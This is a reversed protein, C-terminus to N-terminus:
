QKIIQYSEVNQNSIILLNYIGVPLQTMDIETEISRNIKTIICKGTMDVLEIIYERSEIFGCIKVKGKTPNPYVIFKEDATLGQEDLSQDSKLKSDHIVISGGLLTTSPDDTIGLGIENDYVVDESLTEWIKIRFLDPNGKEKADSDIASILFQYDGEGNITGWGKFKAKSGAVVLWDYVTSKFDLNGAKFKFKTNGDPNVKNKVYRSVFGFSAVGMSDPFLVSAGRPSYILGGGTVFSGEPDYVVVYRYDQTVSVDYNDTITLKIEYVGPNEYYHVGQIENGIIGISTNGDGWNWEAKHLNDDEYYGTVKIPNVINVPDTPAVIETIIPAYNSLTVSQDVEVVNGGNDTIIWHVVTTGIPFIDPANNEVSQIGCEDPLIEIDDWINAFQVHNGDPDKDSFDKVIVIPPTNDVIFVTAKIAAIGGRDNRLQLEVTNEGVNSCDFDTKSLTLWSEGCENVSGNDIDKVTVSAHGNEDLELTIDNAKAIPLSECMYIDYIKFTRPDENGTKLNYYADWNYIIVVQDDPYIEGQTREFGYKDVVIATAGEEVYINALLEAVTTSPKISSIISEENNVYFLESTAVIEEQPFVPILRYVVVTQGDEATVEFYTKSNVKVDVLQGQKNIRKFPVLNHNSDFINLTAGEPVIVSDVANELLTGFIIETIEATDAPFTIDYVMSTLIADDSFGESSSEIYYQTSNTGDASVVTLLEGGNIIGDTVGSLTLQQEEDAKIINGLFESSSTGSIVGSITENMTYGPSVKYVNSYIVSQYETIENMTHKGLDNSINLIELPWGSNQSQWYARNTWTWECDDPNTGFSGQFEPNGKKIIPKRIWNTIMQAPQGGIVWNSGDSMGFVEILEFDAPDTAPKLGAKVDPNLIKFMYWVSNMWKRVPSGKDGISQNWPNKIEDNLNNFQVDLQAPVPWVYDPLRDPHANGDTRIDGFAFVDGPQVIPNVTPDPYAIYYKGTEWDISDCWKYGPIYKLYRDLWNNERWSIVQDPNPNYEMAIMYNSLDLPETGPNYIEGFSNSWQDWFIIESLFPEAAYPQINAPDKLKNLHVKYIRQTHGDEATVTFQITKNAINGASPNFIDTKIHAKYDAPIADFAPVGTVQFPIEVTYEYFASAFNPITDGTWGNIGKLDEPIGLWTIAALEANHAPRYPQVQIFYDKIAGNEATIRLIDGTALDAKQYGGEFIFEYTANSPLELYKILSDARTAFPIGFHSGTITDMVPANQTVRPWDVEGGQVDNGFGYFFKAGSHLRYKPIVTNDDADPQLVVIDFSEVDLDNGCVYITIQDGTRASMFASDASNPSLQYRWALGPKKGFEHMFDDLGRTGWPATITKNMWDVSLTNSVLTTEDLNYDGHNGATWFVDRWASNQHPLTIWESNDPNTGRGNAFDLNGVSINAKRVLTATQTANPFGAVDYAGDRNRGNIDFVGGVQDIVVAENENLYHRLYWVERGNYVEFTSWHDGIISDTEDGNTEPIHFQIDALDYWEEKTQRELYNDPDSLWQEAGFDTVVAITFSEGPNLIYDPLMFFRNPEPNWPDAWPSICGFEFENLQVPQGSVNTLEVYANYMNDLRAETILLSRNIDPNCYAPFEIGNKQRQDPDGQLNVGNDKLCQIVNCSQFDLYNQDLTASILSLNCLEAPLLTFNNYQLDLSNLFNCNSINKPLSGELQNFNLNINNIEVLNGIEPLINGYLNNNCLVINNLGTLDYFEIPIVGDLYNGCLSISRVRGDWLDIGYWFSVPYNSKWNQNNNWNDGNTSDYLAVLALSDQEAVPEFPPFIGCEGFLSKGSQQIQFKDGQFEVNKDMLCQLASCDETGFNNYDLSLYQINTNCIEAPISGSFNNFRIDMNWLNQLTGIEQSIFGDMQTNQISIGNLEPFSGIHQLIQGSLNEDCFSFYWLASLDYFEQPITGNLSNRCLEVNRVRGEQVTVGYWESVTVGEELWGSNNNWNLGDTANYLAVLALSDTESVPNYICGNTLSSGDQQTQAFDWDFEVGNALLCQITPCSGVDFNNGSFVVSQLGPISCLEGPLVGSLSNYAVAINRLNPLLRLDAPIVGTLQNYNLYLWELSEMQGIEPPISGSLQNGALNLNYVETLLGIESPISGTLQNSHVQIYKLKLLNGIEVPIQGGIQNGDLTLELLGTLNGIDAPLNGSLNNNGLNLRIVRENEITVGYWKSVPESSNWNLNNSWSDGNTSIYFQVLALSDQETVPNYICGNTLSFGDKQIQNYDWEFRVGKDKLCKVISCSQENFNNAQFNVQELASINCLSEPLIGSLENNALQISQLNQLQSLESPIEGSLQNNNLSLWQLNILQGIEAPITGTLQNLSLSLNYLNLLSGISNPIAGSFQNNSLDLGQLKAINGIEVPIQGSIQNDGLFLERLGTLNGIDAPLNGSLNNNWLELRTVRENEITVGYWKSVPESSNWNLNNSWSNGNTSIYFQVLALSDQETVPNYICGNTLSFGDKQTQNYDWEFRVGKDKLCKVTSCSQENFNNAQFNVQELASINCLSEPLIGSLENNALQISQLNQLQSLESPIEGSLQNNNLSLWQLNILQGIQPPFTGTLQNESLSLNFLNLLNGISNPIAGSFQNNSLDLGQLKAINGIEVPIQGSIQNGGLYLERLGELDGLEAPLNGSLNNNWLELRTVQENEVTVGFWKSVPESSNWNLNNSWSDGNTSIYFQVLALSDQESVPNYICGNTLSFGNKQHDGQIQVGNSVLCTVTSCSQSDFNNESLGIWVLENLDCIEIPITGTFNNNFFDLTELKILQNIEAPIIGDLQNNSLSIQSLDTLQLTSTPFTGTLQNIGVYLYQLQSLNGIEEPLSGSLQNNSLYIGRLNILNGIEFPITGSISNGSFNIQHLATLTGIQSPIYGGLNNDALELSTVRDNEIYVGYWQSVTVDTELWGANNNWNPGDTANYLAVLALSDQQRENQAYSAYYACLVAILLFILKKM